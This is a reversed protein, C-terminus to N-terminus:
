NKMSDLITHAAAFDFEALTESWVRETVAHGEPTYLLAAFPHIKWSMLFCGHSEKGKNILADIFCSAGVRQTRGTLAGFVKAGARMPAPADRSLETGKCWAPDALNVIVDDASVYDVLNWLFMHALLKNSHYHEQADFTDPDGFSPFLPDANRNPFKAVLTLAASVVTLHAPQRGPGRPPGKAKLIPLLLIALLMTSLYNVQLGEEHGTGPAKKLSMLIVGANLLVYDIRQLESDVRRAFAQVSDYSIMDLLWVEVKAGPHQERLKSVALEGRELSRCGLILYSLKLDLLQSAAEFGLGTNGGTVIATKGSLNENPSPWIPKAKFQNHYFVSAFSRTSPELDKSGVM